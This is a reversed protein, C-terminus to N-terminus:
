REEGQTWRWALRTVVSWGRGPNRHEASAALSLQDNVQAMAQCRVLWQTTVPPLPWPAGATAEADWAAGPRIAGLEIRGVGLSLLRPRGTLRYVQLQAHLERCDGGEENGIVQGQQLYSTEEGRHIYTWHSLASGEGRLRIMYQRALPRRLALGLTLGLADDLRARDAADIQFEDVLVEGYWTLRSGGPLDHWLDWTAFLTSNDQDHGLGHDAESFGEFNELFYPVFPNFFHWDFSRQRGSFLIQDGLSFRARLHAPQWVFRHRAFWRALDPDESSGLRAGATELSFVDDPRRLRFRFMDVPPLHAPWALESLHDLGAGLNRRGWEAVLWPTEWGLTAHLVRGTWGGRETHTGLLVEGEEATTGALWFGAWLSPGLRAHGGGEGWVGPVTSGARLELSRAERSWPRTLVDVGEEALRLRLLEGFPDAPLLWDAAVAARMLALIAVALPLRPRIM